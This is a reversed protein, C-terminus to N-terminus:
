NKKDRDCVCMALCSLLRLVLGFVFLVGINLNFSTMDFGLAQVMTDLSLGAGSVDAQFQTVEGVYIAELGYRMYSIEPLYGLPPGLDKMEQYTPGAGAFMANAFVLTVGLLQALAPSALISTLYAFASACWYVGCFVAYYMWFDARPSVIFYYALNFVAPGLV